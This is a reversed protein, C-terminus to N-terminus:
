YILSVNFFDNLDSITVGNLPVLTITHPGISLKATIQVPVVARHVSVTNSFIEASGIPKGDLELTVGIMQNATTSWVSGSLTFYTPADSPADFSAKLPLPGKAQNLIQLIAM